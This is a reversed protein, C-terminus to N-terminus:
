TAAEAAEAAEASLTIIGNTRCVHVTLPMNYKMGHRPRKPKQNPCHVFTSPGGGGITHNAWLDGCKPCNGQSELDRKMSQLIDTLWTDPVWTVEDPESKPKQEIQTM